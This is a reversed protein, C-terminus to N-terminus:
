KYNRSEEMFKLVLMKLHSSSKLKLTEQLIKVRPQLEKSSSDISSLFIFARHSLAVEEIAEQKITQSFRLYDNEALWLFTNFTATFRPSHLGFEDPRDPGSIDEVYLTCRVPFNKYLYLLTKTTDKCFDEINLDNV